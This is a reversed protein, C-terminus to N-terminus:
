FSQAARKDPISRKLVLPLPSQYCLMTIKAYDEARWSCVQQSRTAINEVSTGHWRRKRRTPWKKTRAQRAKALNELQSVRRKAAFYGKHHRRFEENNEREDDSDEACATFSSYYTLFVVLGTFYVFRSLSRYFSKASNAVTPKVNNRDCHGVPNIEASIPVKAQFKPCQTVSITKRVCVLNRLTGM